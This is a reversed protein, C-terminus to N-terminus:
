YTVFVVKTGIIWDGQYESINPSVSKNDDIAYM